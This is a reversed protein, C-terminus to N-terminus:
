VKCYPECQCDRPAQTLINADALVSWLASLTGYSNDMESRILATCLVFLCLLCDPVSASSQRFLQPGFVSCCLSSYSFLFFAPAAPSPPSPMSTCQRHHCLWQTYTETQTIVVKARYWLRCGYRWRIPALFLVVSSNSGFLWCVTLCDALTHTQAFIPYIVSRFVTAFLLSFYRAHM